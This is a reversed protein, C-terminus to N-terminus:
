PELGELDDGHTVVAGWLDNWHQTTMDTVKPHGLWLFRAGPLRSPVLRMPWADIEFGEQEMTETFRIAERHAAEATKRSSFMYEMENRGVMSTQGVVLYGGFTMVRYVCLYGGTDKSFSWAIVTISGSM